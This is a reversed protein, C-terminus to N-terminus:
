IKKINKTLPKKINKKIGKQLLKQRQYQVQSPSLWWNKDKFDQLSKQRQSKALLRTKQKQDETTKKKPIYINKESRQDKPKKTDALNKLYSDLQKNWLSHISYHCEKCLCAWNWTGNRDDKKYQSRFYIHHREFDNYMVPKRCEPNECRNKADKYVKKRTYESIGIM